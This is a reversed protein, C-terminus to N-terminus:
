HKFTLKSNAIYNWAFVIAVVICKAVYFNMEMKQHILYLFSTNLILGALSVLLFTTFQKAIAEDNSKFTWLRNLVYNNIVAFSFGVANSLYKDMGMYEKCLWTFLFDIFLGVFGTIIFRTLQLIKKKDFLKNISLEM